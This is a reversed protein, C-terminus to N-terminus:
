QALPCPAPGASLTQKEILSTTIVNCGGERGGEGTRLLVVADEVVGDTQDQVHRPARRADM